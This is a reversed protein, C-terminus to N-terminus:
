GRCTRTARWRPGASRRARGSAPRARCRSARGDAAVYAEHLAAMARKPLSEDKYDKAVMDLLLGVAQPDGTSACRSWCSTASRRARQGRRRAAPGAHQARGRAAQAGRGPRARARHHPRQGPRDTARGEYYGGALWEVLYGDIKQRTAEDAYAACSSCRTRPRTSSRRPSTAERARHAGEGVPAAGAAAMVEHREEDAM